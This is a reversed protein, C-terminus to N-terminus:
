CMARINCTQNWFRRALHLFCSFDTARIYSTHRWLMGRHGVGTAISGIGCMASRRGGNSGQNGAKGSSNGGTGAVADRVDDKRVNPILANNFPESM